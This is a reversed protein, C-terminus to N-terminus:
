LSLRSRQKNEFSFDDFYVVADGTSYTHINLKKWGADPPIFFRIELKEWGTSEQAVPFVENKYFSKGDDAAVALYGKEGELEQFRWVSTRYFKGKEFETLDLSFGFQLGDGTGTKCSHTGSRAKESSQTFGNKVQGNEAVFFDGSVNEADTFIMDPGINRFNTAATSNLLWILIMLLLIGGVWAFYNPRKKKFTNETRSIQM